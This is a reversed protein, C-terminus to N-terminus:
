DSNGDGSNGPPLSQKNDGFVKSCLSEKDDRKDDFEIKYGYYPDERRAYRDENLKKLLEIKRRMNEELMVMELAAADLDKLRKYLEQEKRKKKREELVTCLFLLFALASMLGLMMVISYLIM